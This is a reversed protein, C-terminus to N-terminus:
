ESDNFAFNERIERSSKNVEESLGHLPSEKHIKQAIKAWKGKQEIVTPSITSLDRYKELMKILESLELKDRNPLKNIKRGVEDPVNITINM